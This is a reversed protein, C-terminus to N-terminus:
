GSFVMRASGVSAFIRIPPSARSGPPVHCPPPPGPRPYARPPDMGRIFAGMLALLLHATVIAGTLLGGPRRQAWNWLSLQCSGVSPRGGRPSLGAPADRLATSVSLLPLGSAWLMAVKWFGEDATEHLTTPDVEAVERFQLLTEGLYSRPYRGRETAATAHDTWAWRSARREMGALNVIYGHGRTRHWYRGLAQRDIAEPGVGFVAVHLHLVGRETVEPVVIALPRTTGPTQRGLHKRLPGISENVAVASDLMDGSEGPRATLTCITGRHYRAAAAEWASLYTAQRAAVRSSSSVRDPRMGESDVGQRHAALAHRLAGRVRAGRQGPTIACRDRLVKRAVQAAKGGPARAPLSGPARQPNPPEPEALPPTRRSRKLFPPLWELYLWLEGPGRDFAVAKGDVVRYTPRREIRIIDREALDLAARRVRMYEATPRRQGETDSNYVRERGYLSAVLHTFRAGDPSDRVQRVISDYLDADVTEPWPSAPATQTPTKCTSGLDPEDGGSASTM